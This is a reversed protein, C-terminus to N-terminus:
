ICGAIIFDDKIEQLRLNVIKNKLNAQSKVLVRIYNGTYGQWFGNCEKVRAEILVDATKNLFAQKYSVACKESAEKLRGCREELLSLSNKGEFEYASTGKRASYPFIHTKLPMIKKVLSLTNQFNKENEQPFGVLCDTTISARPVKKKIRNILDLYFKRSYRRKMMKLIQDDGSQIPIHLHPCLKKSEVMKDILEDTVDGAEISSLRIWLLGEIKELETIVKVLNIGKGLDRGYSGLCIGTLVIEKFGRAALAEGEKTVEALPRSRSRGRVLPVKCYSCFNNCGDQIKLFARTHGSFDTIGEGFFSRSIILNVGKIKALSYWDDKVMCGTVIIKAEPNEKICSRIAGSSKQDASSTVTCTNIIYTDARENKKVERFGHKLFRERISQTDYQNVKCGLTRFKITPM